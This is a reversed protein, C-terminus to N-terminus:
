SPRRVMLLKPTDDVTALVYLGTPWDDTSPYADADADVGMVQEITERHESDNVGVWAGEDTQVSVSVHTEADYNLRGVQVVALVIIRVDTM